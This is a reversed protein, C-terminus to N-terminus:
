FTAFLKSLIINSQIEEISGQAPFEQYGMRDKYVRIISAVQQNYVSFRVRIANINDDDRTFFKSGYCFDCVGQLKTPATLRNYIKNCTKCTFRSVLRQILLSEDLSLYVFYTNQIGKRLMLYDLYKVQSLTRPYGDIVYGNINTNLIIKEELLSSVIGDPVLNGKAIDSVLRYESLFHRLLDGMSIICLNFMQALFVAQTGKGVGPPGLIIILKM